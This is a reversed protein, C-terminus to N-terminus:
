DHVRQEREEADLSRQVVAAFAQGAPYGSYVHDGHDPHRLEACGTNDACFVVGCYKPNVDVRTAQKVAQAVSAPDCDFAQGRTVEHRSGRTGDDSLMPSKRPVLGKPRAIPVIIFDGQHAADGPGMREPTFHTQADNKIAESLEAQTRLLESIAPKM